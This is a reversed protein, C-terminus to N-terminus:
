RGRKRLMPLVRAKTGTVIAQLRTAWATLAERKAAERQSLNYHKSTVDPKKHNLVASIVDDSIGLDGLNTAMTRRLDHATFPIKTATAMAAATRKSWVLISSESGARSPFVFPSDAADHRRKLLELVPKALPVTHERNAKTESAPIVWTAADLNVDTWRMRSTEALRQGGLLLLKFLDKLSSSSEPPMTITPGKALGRSLVLDADGDLYDWLRKIEDATLVRKRPNEGFPKKGSAPNGDLWEKEIGYAFLMSCYSHLRNAATKAALAKRAVLDSVDSRKIERVPRDGWVPLIEREIARKVDPWSRFEGAQRRLEVHTSYSEFLAQVTHRLAAKAKAQEAAADVTLTAKALKNKARKRAKALSLDPYTGLALMRAWKRSPVRYFVIWTKRGAPSVRLGFGPLNEDWFTIRESTATLAAVGRDTFDLTPM